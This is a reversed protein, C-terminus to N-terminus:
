QTADCRTQGTPKATGTAFDFVTEHSIVKGMGNADYEDFQPCNDRTGEEQREWYTVGDPNTFEYYAPVDLVKDGTALEVVVVSGEPGTSETLVLYDEALAEFWYATDGDGVVRDADEAAVPCPLAAGRSKKETITFVTGVSETNSVASVHYRANVHCTADEQALAPGALGALVPLMLAAAPAIWKTM